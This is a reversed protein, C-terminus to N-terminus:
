ECLKIVDWESRKRKRQGSKMGPTKAKTGDVGELIKDEITQNINKRKKSKKSAIPTEEIEAKQM